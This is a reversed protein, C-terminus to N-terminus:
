AVVKPSFARSYDIRSKEVLELGRKTRIVVDGLGIRQNRDLALEDGIAMVLRTEVGSSAHLIMPGQMQDMRSLVFPRLTSFLNAPPFGVVIYPINEPLYSLKEWLGQNNKRLFQGLWLYIRLFFRV